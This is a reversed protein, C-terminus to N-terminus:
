RDAQERLRQIDEVNLGDLAFRIAQDPMVDYGEVPGIRFAWERRKGRNFRYLRVPVDREDRESDSM